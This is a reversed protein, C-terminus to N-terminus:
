RRLKTSNKHSYKEIRPRCIMKSNRKVKQGVFGIVLDVPIFSFTGYKSWFDSTPFTRDLQRFATMIIKFGTVESFRIPWEM